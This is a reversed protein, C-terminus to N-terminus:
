YKGDRVEFHTPRDLLRGRQQIWQSTWRLMAALPTAPAGLLDQMRTTNSVLAMAAESGRFQVRKGLLEALKMALERVAVIPGSLNLALPEARTLAISRLIMDNADGQWICNLHGTTLDIAEGAFIKQALDVLVGYRMEVAYNLRLLALPTRQRRACYECIRERAVAANAYEGLPVLPDSEVAGGGDVRTMPYVNGTSLIVLRAGAYREVINASVLTNTAWTRPADQATGFKLGVLSVAQAADPLDAVATRDFLDARLRACGM